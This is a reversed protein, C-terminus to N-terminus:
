KNLESLEFTDEVKRYLMDFCVVKAARGIVRGEVTPEFVGKIEDQDVWYVRHGSLEIGAKMVRKSTVMMTRERGWAFDPGVMRLLGCHFMIIETNSAQRAFRYCGQQANISVLRREGDEDLGDFCEIDIKTQMYSDFAFVMRSDFTCAHIASMERELPRIRTWSGTLVDYREVEHLWQVIGLSPVVTVGGIALLYRGCLLVVGANYRPILLDKLRLTSRAPLDLRFFDGLAKAFPTGGRGGLAYFFRGVHVVAANYPVGPLQVKLMPRSSVLIAEWGRDTYVTITTGGCVLMAEMNEVEEALGRFEGMLLDADATNSRKKPDLVAAFLRKLEAGVHLLLSEGLWKQQASAKRATRLCIEAYALTFICHALSPHHASFHGAICHSCIPSSNCPPNNCRLTAASHDCQHLSIQSTM